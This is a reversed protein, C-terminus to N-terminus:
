KYSVIIISVQLTNRFKLVFLVCDVCVCVCDSKDM